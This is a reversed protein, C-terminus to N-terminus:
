LMTPFFPEVIGNTSLASLVTRKETHLPTGVIGHPHESAWVYTNQNNM